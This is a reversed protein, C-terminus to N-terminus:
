HLTLWNPSTNPNCYAGFLSRALDTYIKGSEKDIDSSGVAYALEEDPIWRYVSGDFDLGRHASGYGDKGLKRGEYFIGTNRSKQGPANTWHVVAAHTGKRLSGPRSFKNITLLQDVVNM